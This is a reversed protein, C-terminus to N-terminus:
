VCPTYINFLKSLRMLDCFPILPTKTARKNTITPTPRTAPICVYICFADVVIWVEAFVAILLAVAAADPVAACYALANLQSSSRHLGSEERDEM